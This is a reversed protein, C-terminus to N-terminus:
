AFYITILYFLIIIVFLVGAVLLYVNLWTGLIPAHTDDDEIPTDPQTKM